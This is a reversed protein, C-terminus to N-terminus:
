QELHGSPVLKSLICSADPHLRETVEALASNWDIDQIGPVGLVRILACKTEETLSFVKNNGVSPCHLLQEDGWLIVEGKKSRAAKNHFDLCDYEVEAIDYTITNPVKDADYLQFSVGTQYEIDMCVDIVRGRSKYDGQIFRSAQKLPTSVRKLSLGMSEYFNRYASNLYHADIVDQTGYKRRVRETVTRGAADAQGLESYTLDHKLVFFAARIEPYKGLLSQSIEIKM